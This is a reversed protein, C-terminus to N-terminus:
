FLLPVVFTYRDNIKNTTQNTQFCVKNGSDDMFCVVQHKLFFCIRSFSFEIFFTKDPNRGFTTLKRKKPTDIRYEKFLYPEEKSELIFPVSGIWVRQRSSRESDALHPRHLWRFIQGDQGHPFNGVQFRLTSLGFFLAPHQDLWIRPSSIQRLEFFISFM